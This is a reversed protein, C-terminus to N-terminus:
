NAIRGLFGAPESTEVLTTLWKVTPRYLMRANQYAMQLTLCTHGIYYGEMLSLTMALDPKDPNTMYIPLLYQIRGQFVQPVVISWDLMAKRRAMEVATELLLPLNWNDRIQAPLRMRNEDDKLIHNTHVRIDWDPQYFATASDTPFSPKLPLPHIYRLRPSDQTVFGKFYWPKLTDQKKNRDFCMYIPQYSETFLGTHFCCFENRIYMIRNLEEPPANNYDIALKSFVQHIYRELIPTEDNVSQFAPRKFSWPEPIAMESLDHLQEYWTPIYAFDFLNTLIM